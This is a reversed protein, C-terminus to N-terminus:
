LGLGNSGPEMGEFLASGGYGSPKLFLSTGKGEQWKFVSNNPIDSFLLFAQRRNWVPGEVWKFGDAIKEIKADRPVLQDFRGDLRVVGVTHLSDHSCPSAGFSHRDFLDGGYSRPFISCEADNDEM